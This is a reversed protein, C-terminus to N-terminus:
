TNEGRSSALEGIAERRMVGIEDLGRGTSSADTVKLLRLAIKIKLPTDTLMISSWSM